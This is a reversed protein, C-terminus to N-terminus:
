LTESFAGKISSVRKEDGFFKTITYIQLFSLLAIIAIKIFTLYEINKIIEKLISNHNFRRDVIQRSNALINTFSLSIDKMEKNVEKIQKDTGLNKTGQDDNPSYIEFSIYFEEGLITYFCIAYNRYGQSKEKVTTSGSPAQIEYLINNTKFNKIIVKISKKKDSSVSYSFFLTEDSILGFKYFCYEKKLGNVKFIISVISPMILPILILYLKKM